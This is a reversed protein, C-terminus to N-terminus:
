SSAYLRLLTFVLMGMMIMLVISKRWLFIIGAIICAVLASNHWSFDLVREHILISPAIVAMIATTPAYRLARQMLPSFKFSSPMLLFFSRSIFTVACLGFTALLLWFHEFYTM